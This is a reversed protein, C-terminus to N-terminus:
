LREIVARQLEAHAVDEPRRAWFIQRPRRPSTEGVGNIRNGSVPALLATVEPAATWPAKVWRRHTPKDPASSM